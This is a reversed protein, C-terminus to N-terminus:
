DARSRDSKLYCKIEFVGGRWLGAMAGESLVSLLLLGKPRDSRRLVCRLRDGGHRPREGV